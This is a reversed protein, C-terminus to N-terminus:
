AKMIFCLAYYPPRNEHGEGKGFQAQNAPGPLVKVGTTAYHSKDSRKSGMELFDHDDANDGCGRYQLAHYWM